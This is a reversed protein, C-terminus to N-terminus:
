TLLEGRLLLALAGGGHLARLVWLRVVLRIDEEGRKEASDDVRMETEARRGISRRECGKGCGTDPWCRDAGLGDGHQTVPRLRRAAVVHGAKPTREVLAVGGHGFAGH